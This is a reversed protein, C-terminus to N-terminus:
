RIPRANLSSKYIRSLAFLIIRSNSSVMSFSSFANLVSVSEVFLCSILSVITYIFCIKFSTFRVLFTGTLVILVTELAAPPQPRPAAPPAPPAHVPACVPVIIPVAHPPGIPAAIPAGIPATM